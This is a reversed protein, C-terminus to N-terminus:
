DKLLARRRFALLGVLCSGVLGLAGPEPISSVSPVPADATLVSFSLEYAGGAETTKEWGALVGETVITVGDKSLITSNQSDLAATSNVAIAIYYTGELLDFTLTSNFNGGIPDIDDNAGLPRGASDFFFLNTDLDSATTFTASGNSGLYFRFLDVEGVNAITGQVLGTGAPLIIATNLTEGTPVTEVFTAASLYWPFSLVAAVFTLTVKMYLTYASVSSSAIM